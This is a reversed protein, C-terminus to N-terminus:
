IVWAILCYLRFFEERVGGSQVSKSTPRSEGAKAINYSVHQTPTQKAIKELSKPTKVELVRPVTKLAGILKSAWPERSKSISTKSVKETNELSKDQIRVHSLESAQTEKITYDVALNPGNGEPIPSKSSHFNNGTSFAMADQFHSDEMDVFDLEGTDVDGLVPVDKEGTHEGNLVYSTTGLEDRQLLGQKMEVANQLTESHNVLVMQDSPSTKPDTKPALPEAQAQPRSASKSQNHRQQNNLSIPPTVTSIIKQTVSGSKGHDGPSHSTNLLKKDQVMNIRGNPKSPQIGLAEEKESADSEAIGQIKKNAALAAARRIRPKTLPAPRAKGTMSRKEAPDAQAVKPSNSKAVSVTMSKAAKRKGPRSSVEIETEDVNLDEDWNVADASRAKHSLQAKRANGPQERWTSGPSSTSLMASKSAVDRKETRSHTKTTNQTTPSAKSVPKRHGKPRPPSDPIEFEDFAEVTHNDGTTSKPTKTQRKGQPRKSQVQGGTNGNGTDANKGRSSPKKFTQPKRAIKTPKQTAIDGDDNRMRKTLKKSSSKDTKSRQKSAPTVRALNEQNVHTLEAPQPEGQPARPSADYLGNHDEDQPPFSDGFKRRQEELLRQQNYPEKPLNEIEPTRDILRKGNSWHASDDLGAESADELQEGSQYFGEEGLHVPIGPTRSAIHLTSLPGNTVKAQNERRDLSEPPQADIADLQRLNSLELPTEIPLLANAHSATAILHESGELFCHSISVGNIQLQSIDIAKEAQSISPYKLSQDKPIDDAPPIPERRHEIDAMIPDPMDSSDMRDDNPQSVDINYVSQSARLHEIERPTDTAILRKVSQAAELNDFAIEISKTRRQVANIYCSSELTHSTQISLAVVTRDMVPSLQSSEELTAVTAHGIYKIPVDIYIAPGNESPPLLIVLDESKTVLIASENDTSYRVAKGDM